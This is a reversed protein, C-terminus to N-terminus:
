FIFYFFYFIFKGAAKSGSAISEKNSKVSKASKEREVDVQLNNVLNEAEAKEKTEIAKKLEKDAKEDALLIADPGM